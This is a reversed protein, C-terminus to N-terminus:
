SQTSPGLPGGGSRNRRGTAQTRRTEPHPLALELLLGRHNSNLDEGFPALSVLRAGNHVLAQDIPIGLRGTAAPWTGPPRRAARMGTHQLLQTIQRSWPAANFDGVALVPLNLWDYQAQLRRIEPEAIGSFWPKTLHSAAIFFPQGDPAEFETVVYRPPWAPNLALQWHRRVPVRSLVVIECLDLTCDSLVEYTRALRPLASRIGEAETFIIVDADAALLATAIRDAYAANTHLVNFFIVRAAINADPVLPLSLYRHQRILDGAGMLTAATLVLAIIHASLGWLILAALAVCALMWPALSDFIRALPGIPTESPVHRAGLATLLLLAALLITAGIAREALRSHRVGYTM